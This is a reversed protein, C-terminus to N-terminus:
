IGGGVRELDKYSGVPPVKEPSKAAAPPPVGVDTQQGAKGEESAEKLIEEYETRSIVGKKLLIDLIRKDDAFTESTIAIIVLLLIRSLIRAM